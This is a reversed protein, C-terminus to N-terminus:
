LLKDEDEPEEDEDEEEPEKGEEPEEGEEEEAGTPGIGISNFHHQQHPHSWIGLSVMQGKEGEDNRVQFSITKSRIIIECPSSSSFMSPFTPVNVVPFNHKGKSAAIPTFTKFFTNNSVYHYKGMVLYHGM